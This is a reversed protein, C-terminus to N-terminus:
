FLCSVRRSRSMQMLLRVLVKTMSLLARVMNSLSQRLTTVTQQLSRRSEQENALDANLISVQRAREATMMKLDSTTKDLRSLVEQQHMLDRPESFITHLWVEVFVRRQVELSEIDKLRSRYDSEKVDDEM